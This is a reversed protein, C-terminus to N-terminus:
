EGDQRNKTMEVEELRIRKKVGKIERGLGRLKREVEVVRVVDQLVRDFNKAADRLPPPPFASFQSLPSPITSVPPPSPLISSDPKPKSDSASLELTETPAPPIM